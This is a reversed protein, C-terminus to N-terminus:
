GRASRRRASWASAASPARTATKTSAGPSPCTLSLRAPALGPHSTRAVSSSPRENADYTTMNPGIKQVPRVQRRLQCIPPESSAMPESTGALPAPPSASPAHTSWRPPMSVARIARRETAKKRILLETFKRATATSPVARASPRNPGSSESHSVAKGAAMATSASPATTAMGRRPGPRAGPGSAERSRRATLAARTATM